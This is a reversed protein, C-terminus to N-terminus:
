AEANQAIDWKVDPQTGTGGSALQQTYQEDFERFNLTIQESIKDEEAKHAGTAISTILVQKLKFHLYVLPKDGAKRVVLEATDYHSGKCCHLTLDPTCLDVFKSVTIDGVAVKGGGSGGGVHATGSNHLTWSWSVIDIWDKYTQDQSEGKLSGIKLFMDYAM